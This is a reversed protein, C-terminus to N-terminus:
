SVSDINKHYQPEVGDIMALIMKELEFLHKDHIHPAIARMEQALRLVYETNAGSKGKSCYIQRAIDNLPAPGLYNPNSETGIYVLVTFEDINHDQPHFLLEQTTYGGVERKDLYIMVEQIDQAHVKYAM